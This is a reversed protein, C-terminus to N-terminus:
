NWYINEKIVKAPNGALLKREDFQNNVLSGASIVSGREIKSNKLISVGFGVWVNDGIFVEGTSANNNLQHVNSDTITVDWSIACNNGITCKNYILLRSRENIYTKDGVSLFSNSDLSIQVGKKISASGLFSIVAEKKLIINVNDITSDYDLGIQIVKGRPIIIKARSASKIKVKRSALILGKYRISYYLSKIISLKLFVKVKSKLM